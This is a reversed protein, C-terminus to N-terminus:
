GRGGVVATGVSPATGVLETLEAVRAGVLPRFAVAWVADPKLATMAKRNWSAAKVTM